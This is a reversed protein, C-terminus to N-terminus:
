GGLSHGMDVASSRHPGDQLAAAEATLDIGVPCWTICRGCGVCGDVGFQSRYTGLKHNLWHRYRSRISSRVPGATTYSFQHTFCSEWLRTRTASDGALDTSDVVSSCFCTPCVQTCNGCGLCRKAVEDWHPHEGAVALREALGETELHKGMSAAANQLRLEALELEAPSPERGPLARLVEIGRESGAQLLFGGRLETLALDAGEQVVPGTGMSTCFCNSGPHTCNVAALFAMKRASRYYTDIECRFTGTDPSGFVRDLSLLAAVDCPRIGLIALRPPDDSCDEIVLDDPTTRLRFLHLTPPFFWRKPGDPGVVYRFSLASDGERIRYHGAGQEDAVGHPLDAASQIPQLSIVGDRVTPGVVLYGQDRLVSILADIDARPLYITDTGAAIGAPM